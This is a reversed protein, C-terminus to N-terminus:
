VLVALDRRVYEATVSVSSTLLQSPTGEFVIEGGASGADPGLHIIWDANKLFMRTFRRVVGEYTFNYSTGAIM